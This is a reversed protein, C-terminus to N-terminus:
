QIADAMKKMFLAYEEIFNGTKTYAVKSYATHLITYAKHADPANFFLKSFEDEQSEKKLAISGNYYMFPLRFKDTNINKADNAFALNATHANYNLLSKVRQAIGADTEAAEPIHRWLYLTSDDWNYKDNSQLKVWVGDVSGVATNNQNNMIEYSARLTDASISNIIMENATKGSLKIKNPAEFAWKSLHSQGPQTSFYSGKKSFVLVAYEMGKKEALFIDGAASKGSKAIGKPNVEVNKWTGSLTKLQPDNIDKANFNSGNDNTNSKCAAFMLILGVIIFNKM